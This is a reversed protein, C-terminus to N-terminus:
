EYYRKKMKKMIAYDSRIDIKKNARILFCNAYVM